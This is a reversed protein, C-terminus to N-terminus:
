IMSHIRKYSANNEKEKEREKGKREKKAPVLQNRSNMKM